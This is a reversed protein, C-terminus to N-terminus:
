TCSSGSSARGSPGPSWRWWTMTPPARAPWTACGSAAGELGLTLSDTGAVHMLMALHPNALYDDIRMSSADVEDTVNELIASVLALKQSYMPPDPAVLSIDTSGM